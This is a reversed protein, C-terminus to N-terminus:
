VRLQREGACLGFQRTAPKDPGRVLVSQNSFYYYGAVGAAVVLVSLLALFKDAGSVTYETNTSM